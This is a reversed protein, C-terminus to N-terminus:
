KERTGPQQGGQDGGGGDERLPPPWGGSPPTAEGGGSSRATLGAAWQQWLQWSNPSVVQRRVLVSLVVSIVAVVVPLWVAGGAVQGALVASVAVVVVRLGEALLVPERQTVSSSVGDAHEGM